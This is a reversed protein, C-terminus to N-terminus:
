LASLGLRVAEYVAGDLLGVDVLAALGAVLVPPLLVRVTARVAPVVRPILWEM